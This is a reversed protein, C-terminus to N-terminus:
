KIENMKLIKRNRRKKWRQSDNGPKRTTIYKQNDNGNFNSKSTKVSDLKKEEKENKKEKQMHGIITCYGNDIWKGMVKQGDFRCKDTSCFLAIMESKIFLILLAFTNM